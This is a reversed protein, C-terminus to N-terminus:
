DDVGAPFTLFGHETILPCGFPTTAFAVEHGVGQLARAFPALPRWHGVRGLSQIVRAYSPRTAVPVVVHTSSAGAILAINSPSATHPSATRATYVSAAVPAVRPPGLAVTPAPDRRSDAERPLARGTSTAPPSATSSGTATTAGGGVELTTVIRSRLYSQRSRTVQFAGRTSTRHLAPAHQLPSYARGCRPPTPHTPNQPCERRVEARYYGSAPSIGRVRCVRCGGSHIFPGTRALRTNTDADADPGPSPLATSRPGGPPSATLASVGGHGVCGIVAGGTSM